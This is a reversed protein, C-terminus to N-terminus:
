SYLDLQRQDGTLQDFDLGLAKLVPEAVPKIQKQVYHERDLTHTV